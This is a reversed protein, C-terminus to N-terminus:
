GRVKIPSVGYKQKFSTSFHSRNKFGVEMFVDQVERGEKLKQHAVELRKRILWKQPSLSSVKKFDRKFTALSRGTYIAIQEITLDEMYNRNLFELIDIKWPDAFDFLIPYFEDSQELVAYIGEMLKAHVVRNSPTINKDFYPILSEFLSTIEPTITLQVVKQESVVSNTPLRLKNTQRYLDHLIKRNFSLTVGKYPQEDKSGKFMDIGHDRRVFVCQRAEITIKNNGDIITLQGSYLYTLAHEPMAHFCREKRDFFCSIFVGSYSLTENQINRLDNMHM